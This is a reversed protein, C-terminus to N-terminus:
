HYPVDRPSALFPSLVLGIFLMGEGSITVSIAITIIVPGLRMRYLGFM